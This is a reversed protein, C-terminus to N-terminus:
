ASLSLWIRTVDAKLSRSICKGRGDMTARVKKDLKGTLDSTISSMEQM